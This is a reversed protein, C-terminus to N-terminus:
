DFYMQFYWRRFPLWKTRPSISYHFYRKNLNRFYSRLCCPEHAERHGTVGNNAQQVKDDPLARGGAWEKKCSQRLNSMTLLHLIHDITWKTSSTDSILNMPGTHPGSPSKWSYTPGVSAEHLKNDSLPTQEEAATKKHTQLTRYLRELWNRCSLM